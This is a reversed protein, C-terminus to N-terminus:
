DFCNPPMTNAFTV